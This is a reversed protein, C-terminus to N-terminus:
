GGITQFLPVHDAEGAGPRGARYGGSTREWRPLSIRVREPSRTGNGILDIPNQTTAGMKILAEYVWATQNGAEIAISLGGRVFRRLRREFAVEDTAVEGGALKNGRHDTVYVYSSVGALDIGCYDM